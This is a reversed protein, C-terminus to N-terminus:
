RAKMLPTVNRELITDSAEDMAVKIRDQLESQRQELLGQRYRELYALQSPSLIEQLPSLPSNTQRGAQRGAQRDTRGDAQM